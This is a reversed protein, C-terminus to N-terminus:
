AFRLAYNFDTLILRNYCAYEIEYYEGEVFEGALYINNARHMPIAGYKGLEKDMPSNGSLLKKVLELNTGSRLDVRMGNIILHLPKNEPYNFVKLNDTFLWAPVLLYREKPIFPVREIVGGVHNIMSHNVAHAPRRCWFKIDMISSHCPNDKGGVNGNYEIDSIVSINLATNEGYINELLKLAEKVREQSVLMSRVESRIAVLDNNGRPELAVNDVEERKRKKGGSKKHTTELKQKKNPQESMIFFLSNYWLYTYLKVYARNNQYVDFYRANESNM